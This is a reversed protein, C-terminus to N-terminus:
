AREKITFSLRILRDEGAIAWADEPVTVFGEVKPEALEVVDNDGHPKRLMTCLAVAADGSSDAIAEAAARYLYIVGSTTVNLWQGKRILYGPTVGKINLTTGTQGAGDVKAENGPAKTDFEVQPITWICTEAETELGVWDMAEETTMPELKVDFAYRSGMRSFRQDPTGFAPQSESRSTILRPTMAIAGPITPLTVATM